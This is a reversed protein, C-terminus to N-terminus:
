STALPPTSAQIMELAAQIPNTAPAPELEDSISLAFTTLHHALLRAADQSRHEICAQLLLTHDDISDYLWRSKSYDPHFFNLYRESRAMTSQLLRFLENGSHSFLITHFSRHAKQWNHFQQHHQAQRMEILARAAAAADEHTFSAATLAIGLSELMVRSAYVTVFDSADFASVSARLNPEAEILGEEQLMRFAERLPTRSVGLQKSLELQSLITGPPLTGNLIMERLYAHVAISSKRREALELPKLRIMADM